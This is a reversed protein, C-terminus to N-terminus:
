MGGARILEGFKKRESPLLSKWPFNVLRPDNKDMRGNLVETAYHTMRFAPPSQEPDWKMAALADAAASPESNLLHTVALVM